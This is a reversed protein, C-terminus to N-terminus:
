GFLSPEPPAKQMEKALFVNWTIEPNRKSLADTYLLQYSKTQLIGSSKNASKM